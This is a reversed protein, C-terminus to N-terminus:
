ERAQVQATGDQLSDIQNSLANQSSVVNKIQEDTDLLIPELFNMLGRAMDESAGGAMVKSPTVPVM